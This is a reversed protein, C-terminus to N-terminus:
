KATSAASTAPLKFIAIADGLPYDLQFSGGAAVAIYQQGKVM